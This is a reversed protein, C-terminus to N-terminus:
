GKVAGINIGKIFYKQLFPYVMLIPLTTVILTAAKVTDGTVKAKVEQGKSMAQQMTMSNALEAEKILRMMLYQLTHLDRDTIYTLTTTWDNWAGVSLWLAVCAVVPLTMPFIIRFMIILDNAGDIKASEEMEPPLEQLYSRIIVMNYFAFLGPLIYVWFTNILHLNKMNIYIPITGAPIYGPLMLFLTLQKRYPLGKRTLGYAAAYTVLLSLVTSCIVRLVSIKAASLFSPDSFVTRYNEFTFERPFITIGGSIADMGDNFSLALQNLYPYVSVICILVMIITNVVTFIKEGLSRKM